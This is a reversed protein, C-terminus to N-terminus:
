AARDAVDRLIDPAAAPLGLLPLRRLLRLRVREVVAGRQRLPAAADREWEHPAFGPHLQVTAGGNAFAQRNGTDLYSEAPLGEALIVAHAPLEVHWYTVRARKEQRVSAGNILHKIPILAGNAFVAHDPSLWLPRAPQNRAFAHPAILVPWVADPEPHRSCAIERHGLWVVPEARGEVTSVLDGARLDEVATEGLPTRIRTGAVYCATEITNAVVYFQAPDAQVFNLAATTGDSFGLHLVGAGDAAPSNPVYSSFTITRGPFSLSNQEGWYKIEAQFAAPDDLDLSAGSQLGVTVGPGVAQEAILTYAVIGGSGSVQGAVDLAEGPGGANLTGNDVVNGRILGASLFYGADVVVEGVSAHGSGGVELMGTSVNVTNNDVNVNGGTTVAGGSSVTLGTAYESGEPVLVGGVALTSGAGDVVVNGPGAVYGAITATAGDEVDLTGALYVSGLDSSTSGPPADVTLTSGNGTITLSNSGVSEDGLSLMSSAGSVTLSGGDSITLNAGAGYRIGLEVTGAAVSGTIVDSQDGIEVQDNFLLDGVTFTGALTDVDGPITVTLVMKQASGTGTVSGGLTNIDAEDGDAETPPAV